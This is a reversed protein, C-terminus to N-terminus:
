AIRECECKEVLQCNMRKLKLKPNLCVECLCQRFRLKKISAINRPEHRHFLRLSVWSKTAKVFERHLESVPRLLQKKASARCPDDVSNKEFYDHILRQTSSPARKSYPSSVEPTKTMFRQTLGVDSINSSDRFAEALRWKHLLIRKDRKMKISTVHTQLMMNPSPTKQPTMTTVNLEQLAAKTSTDATKM